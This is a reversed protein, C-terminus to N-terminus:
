TTKSRKTKTAPQQKVQTTSHSQLKRVYTRRNERDYRQFERFGIYLFAALFAYIIDTSYPTIVIVIYVITLTYLLALTYSKIARAKHIGKLKLTKSFHYRHHLIHALLCVVITTFLLVLANKYLLATTPIETFSTGHRTFTFLFNGIGLLTIVSGWVFINRRRETLTPDIKQRPRQAKVLQYELKYELLLYLVVSALALLCLVISLWINHTFLAIAICVVILIASIDLTQWLVETRLKKVPIYLGNM